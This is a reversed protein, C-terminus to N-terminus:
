PQFGQRAAEQAMQALANPDTPVDGQPGGDEVYQRPEPVQGQANGGGGPVMPAQQMMQEAPPPGGGPGGGNPGGGSLIQEVMQEAMMIAQEEAMQQAVQMLQNQNLPRM